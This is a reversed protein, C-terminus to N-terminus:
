GINAKHYAAFCNRGASLCLAIGCTECSWFSKAPSSKTSCRGCRRRTGYIPMHAAAAQKAEIPVKPKHPGVVALTRKRGKQVALVNGLLGDVIALRFTKLTLNERNGKVTYIIFANTVVTDILHWFIRHWWKKSKRSIQYLSKLMDAKDVYGMHANYERVLSPCPISLITGDKQKRNVSTSERPDHFNSLFYVIRNDKWKVWRLGSSSTKFESQGRKWKKDNEEDKPLGVRNRRVTGCALIDDKKLSTMLDVSTFFNDFYVHHYGGVIERTLDKVVRAGLSQETKNEAKGTYIQFESVYGSENARVWVKYGRKIPKAANYQKMSSRGKFKIMSEDISQNQDPNYCKKFTKNLTDIIPRVKYLKDFYPHGRRPSKTNDNLHLHSLLSGFRNVTMKSSIYSDNLKADNSWYDRYSPLRKVGMMINIGIFNLMEQKTTPACKNGNQQIYKNTETTLIDIFEHPLLCHFIEIPRSAVTPINPGSPKTFPSNDQPKGVSKWTNGNGKKSSQRHPKEEENEEYGHQNLYDIEGDGIVEDSAGEESDSDCEGDISESDSPINVTELDDDFM